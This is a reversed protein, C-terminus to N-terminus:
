YFSYFAFIATFVELYFKKQTGGHCHFLVTGDPKTHPNKLVRIRVFDSKKSFKKSKIVKQYNWAADGSGDIDKYIFGPQKSRGFSRGVVSTDM